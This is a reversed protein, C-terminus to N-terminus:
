LSRRLQASVWLFPPNRLERKPDAVSKRTGLAEDLRRNPRTKSRRAGNMTGPIDAANRAVSAEIDECRRLEPDQEPEHNYALPADLHQEQEQETGVVSKSMEMADDLKRNYEAMSRRMRSMRWQIEAATRVIEAEVKDWRKKESPTMTDDHNSVNQQETTVTDHMTITQESRKAALDNAHQELFIALDEVDKITNSPM